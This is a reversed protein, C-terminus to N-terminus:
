DEMGINKLTPMTPEIPKTIEIEPPKNNAARAKPRGRSNGASRSRDGRQRQPEGIYTNTAPIQMGPVTGDVILKVARARPTQPSPQPGEGGGTNYYLTPNIVSSSSLKDQKLM